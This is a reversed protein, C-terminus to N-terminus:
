MSSQDVVTEFFELNYLDLMDSGDKLAKMFKNEDHTEKWIAYAGRQKNKRAFQQTDNEEPNLVYPM